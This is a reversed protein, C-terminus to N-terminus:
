GHEPTVPGTVGPLATDMSAARRGAPLEVARVVQVEEGVPVQLAEAAGCWALTETGTQLGKGGRGKSPYESLATRKAGGDAAVTLVEVAEAGEDQAPVVSLSIVRAGKPVQIGAVGAAGRGMPRVEEAAFRTVYGGDHALLLHDAEACTTVGVIVDDDKVGAAIM